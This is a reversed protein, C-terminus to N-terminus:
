APSPDLSCVGLLCADFRYGRLADVVDPGSVAMTFGSGKGGLQVVQVGNRSALETPVPLSVSFATKNFGPPLLRAVEVDDPFKGSQRGARAPVSTDPQHQDVVRRGRL